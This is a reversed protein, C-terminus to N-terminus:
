NEGRKFIRKWLADAEGTLYDELYNRELGVVLNVRDCIMLGEQQALLRSLGNWTWVTPTDLDITKITSVQSLRAVIATFEVLADTQNAFRMTTSPFVLDFTGNEDAHEVLQMIINISYLNGAAWRDTNLTCIHMDNHECCPVEMFLIHSMFSVNSLNDMNYINFDVIYRCSPTELESYIRNTNVFFPM